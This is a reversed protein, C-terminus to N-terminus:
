LEGKFARDLISPLLADLEAATEAQLRKLSYVELQVLCLEAVIRRQERLPPLPFFFDPADGVRIHPTTLGRCHETVQEVFLSSNLYHLVFTGDAIQPDPRLLLLRQTLCFKGTPLMCAYGMPAERTLVIDGKRPRERRNWRVFDDESMFWRRTLDLKYPRVNTSKLGLLGSDNDVFNPTDNVCDVLHSLVSGLTTWQWTTPVATPGCSIFKPVGPHANNHKSIVKSYRCVSSNLLDVASDQRGSAALLAGTVALQLLTPWLAEADEAAQARVTRAEKIQRALEEIRAVLRQQKALPPLPIELSLFREESLRVRNTTGESARMCLQVFDRTRSLWELFSPLLKENDIKFLPFDNTVLGGDLSQPVLGSAGNRADIRSIIFDGASAVFRRNPLEAGRVRGREVVGKGWLRVSIERYETSPDPQITKTSRHLLDALRATRGNNDM